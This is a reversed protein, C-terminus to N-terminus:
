LSTPPPIQPNPLDLLPSSEGTKGSCWVPSFPNEELVSRDAFLFLGHGRKLRSCADLLSKVWEASTTVTLVRFRHIGLYRQHVKNTWTAEYALLKRMFSTQALNKRIVPMTGRDAELFFYAREIQGGHDAYELSFVRDPIVGLQTGDVTVRWSVPRKAIPLGLEDEYLLRVDGRKRCALELSVMVETVLLTHDLYIRGISHNREDWTDPLITIGPEQRLLAGGKSGLGYVISKGGGREHYTLQARPRELYGHHFLLQLRRVVQQHSGGVLAAIEDSRIFRHRHVLRVIACDRNTLQFSGVSITRQFRPLRLEAM